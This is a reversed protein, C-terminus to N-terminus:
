VDNGSKKVVCSSSMPNSKDVLGGRKDTGCVSWDLCSKICNIYIVCIIYM